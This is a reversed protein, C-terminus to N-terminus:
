QNEEPFSSIYEKFNFITRATVDKEKLREPKFFEPINNLLSIM